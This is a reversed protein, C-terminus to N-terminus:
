SNLFKVISKFVQENNTENLIEHRLKPFLELQVSKNYKSLFLKLEKVGKGNEGVPDESGAILLIPLNIDLESMKEHSFAKIVGGALDDYMQNTPIFGCLPNSIYEDVSEHNSSLWDHTTRNPKFQANFQKTTLTDSFYSKEKSGKILKILKIILKQLFLKSVSLKSSASLIVKHPSIGRQLLAITLWSGMSHALIFHPIDSYQEQITKFSLKMDDVVVNWGDKNAFFGPINGSEVWDGHGRHNIGVVHYGISNFFQATHKYRGFYEALGHYIHIVGKPNSLDSSESIFIKVSENNSNQATIFKM